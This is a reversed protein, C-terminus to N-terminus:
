WGCFQELDVIVPHGQLERFEAMKTLREAIPRSQRSFIFELGSFFEAFDPSNKNNGDGLRDIETLSARFPGALDSFQPDRRLEECFANISPSHTTM